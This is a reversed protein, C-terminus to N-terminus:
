AEQALSDAGTKKYRGGAALDEVLEVARERGEENMQAMAASIRSLEQATLVGAEGIPPAPTRKTKQLCGSALSEVDLGLTNFIKIVTGVGANSIGRKFISDMTSYPIEASTTFARVSKYQSLIEFKLQEEITVAFVGKMFM